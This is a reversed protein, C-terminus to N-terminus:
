KDLDESNSSNMNMMRKNRFLRVMKKETYGNTQKWGLSTPPVSIHKRCREITSTFAAKYNHIYNEAFRLCVVNQTVAKNLKIDSEKNMASYFMFKRRVALSCQKKICEEEFQISHRENNVVAEYLDDDMIIRAIDCLFHKQLTFLNIRSECYLNLLLPIGCLPKLNDPHDNDVHVISLLHQRKNKPKRQQNRQKEIEEVYNWRYTFGEIDTSYPYLDCNDKEDFEIGNIGHNGNESDVIQVEISRIDRLPAHYVCILYESKLDAIPDDKHFVHFIKGEVILCVFVESGINFQSSCHKQLDAVTANMDLACGYFTPTKLLRHKQPQNWDLDVFVFELIRQTDGM